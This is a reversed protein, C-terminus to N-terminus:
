SKSTQKKREPRKRGATEITIKLRAGSKVGKRRLKWILGSFVVVESFERNGDRFNPIPPMIALASVKM